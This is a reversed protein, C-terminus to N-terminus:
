AAVTDKKAGKKKAATLTAEAAVLMNRASEVQAEATELDTMAPAAPAAAAAGKAKKGGKKEDKKLYRYTGYALGAVAVAAVGGIVYRNTAVNRIKQGISEGQASAAAIDGATVIVGGADVVIEAADVAADFGRAAITRIAKM